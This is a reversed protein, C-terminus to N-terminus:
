ITGLFRHALSVAMAGDGVASAVRKVSASRADGAVFVGPVSSELLWPDRELTWGRPRRGDVILDVGTPIFGLEDRVLVDELWETRPQAGIFVFMHSADVREIEKERCLSLSELHDSGHAEGVDGSVPLFWRPIRDPNTCADWLDEVDTAYTQSITIVRAEGAEMTKSGVTRTVANIQHTVDIM